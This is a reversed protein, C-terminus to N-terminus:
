FGRAAQKLARLRRFETISPFAESMEADIDKATGIAQALLPRVTAAIDAGAAFALWHQDLTVASVSGGMASVTANRDGSVFERVRTLADEYAAAYFPQERFVELTLEVPIEIDEGGAGAPEDSGSREGAESSRAAELRLFEADTFASFIAAGLDEKAIRERWDSAIDIEVLEGRPALVVTVVGSPDHGGEDRPDDRNEPDDPVFGKPPWSM